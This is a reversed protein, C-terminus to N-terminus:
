VYKHLPKAAKKDAAMRASEKASESRKMKAFRVLEDIVQKGSPTAYGSITYYGFATGAGQTKILGKTELTTFVENVRDANEHTRWNPEPLYPVTGEVAAGLGEGHDGEDWRYKGDNYLVLLAKKELSRLGGVIEVVESRNLKTQTDM